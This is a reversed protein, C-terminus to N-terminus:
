LTWCSVLPRMPREIRLMEENRGATSQVVEAM